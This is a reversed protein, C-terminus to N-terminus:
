PNVPGNPEMGLTVRVTKVQKPLSVTLTVTDGPKDRAILSKLQAVSSVSTGNVATIVDGPKLGSAASPGKPVVDAVVVGTATPLHYQQALSPSDPAIFLGLWPRIVRGDKMLQPLIQNVTSTPIAFGIGQAQSAVATNIGVVQGALNLLPGGSNGPNIAASTQLLNRYQRQGITLPRGKASIVGETVTDSLGYPNGIAVVWAGVPTANANGLPLAPLPAPASIKLVALDTAYDSGIVRAPFPKKYGMVTVQINKGGQIVHDNTLIYGQSNFIFGSGLSTETQYVPTNPFPSGGFISSFFQTAPSQQQVTLTATVKVVSRSAREAVNAITNAGIPLTSPASAVTAYQDISAHNQSASHATPPISHEYAYLGGGAAGAGLAFAVVAIGLTKQWTSV